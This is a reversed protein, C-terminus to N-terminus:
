QRSGWSAGEGPAQTTARFDPPWCLCHPLPLPVMHLLSRLALGPQFYSQQEWVLEPGRSGGRGSRGTGRLFEPYELFEVGLLRRGELALNIEPTSAKEPVLMLGLFASELNRARVAKQPSKEEWFGVRLERELFLKRM